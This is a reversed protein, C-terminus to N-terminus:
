NNNYLFVTANQTNNTAQLKGFENIVELLKKISEKSYQECFIIDDIFLSLIIVERRLQLEKM